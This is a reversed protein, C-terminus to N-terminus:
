EATLADTKRTIIFRSVPEVETHIGESVTKAGVTSDSEGVCSAPYATM